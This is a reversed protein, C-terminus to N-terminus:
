YFNIKVISSNWRDDCYSMDGLIKAKNPLHDPDIIFESVCGNFSTINDEKTHMTSKIDGLVCKIITGNELVLDLHTGIEKKFYSGLAVCYRDDVMRIGYNGTYAKQQLEYQESEKNTIATYPMYSKFGSNDPMNYTKVKIPHDSIYQKSIYCNTENHSIVVWDQNYNEYQIKTNLPMIEVVNSSLLPKERANVNATTYGTLEFNLNKEITDEVDETSFLTEVGATLKIDEISSKFIENASVGKMSVNSLYHFSMWILCYILFNKLIFKM